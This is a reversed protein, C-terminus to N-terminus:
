STEGKKVRCVHEAVAFYNGDHGSIYRKLISEVKEDGEFPLEPKFEEEYVCRKVYGDIEIIRCVNAWEVEPEKKEPKEHESKWLAIREAVEKATMNVILSDMYYDLGFAEAYVGDRYHEFIWEIAEEATLVPTSEEQEIRDSFDTIEYDRIEYFHIDCYSLVKGNEIRYCTSSGYNEWYDIWHYKTHNKVELGNILEEAEEQTKCHVVANDIKKLKM